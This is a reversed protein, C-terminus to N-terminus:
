LVMLLNRKQDFLRFNSIETSNKQKSFFLVIPRCKENRSVKGKQFLDLFGNLAM